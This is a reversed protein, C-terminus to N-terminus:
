RPSIFRFWHIGIMENISKGLKGALLDNIELIMGNRDLQATFSTKSIAGYMLQIHKLARQAEKAYVSQRVLREAVTVVASSSLPKLLYKDVGVDIARLF